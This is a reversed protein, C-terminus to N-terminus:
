LTVFTKCNSPKQNDQLVPASASFVPKSQKFKNLLLGIKSSSFNKWKKCGKEPPMQRKKLNRSMYWACRKGRWTVQFSFHFSFRVKLGFQMSLLGDMWGFALGALHAINMLDVKLWMVKLKAGSLCSDCTVHCICHPQCSFFSTRLM